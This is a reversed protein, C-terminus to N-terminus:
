YCIYEIYYIRLLFIELCKTLIVQSFFIIIKNKNIKIKFLFKVNCYNENYQIILKSLRKDFNIKKKKTLSAPRINNWKSSFM